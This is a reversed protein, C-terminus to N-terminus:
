VHRLRHRAQLEPDVSLDGISIRGLGTVLITWIRRYEAIQEQTPVTRRGRWPKRNTARDPLRQGPKALVLGCRSAQKRIVRRTVGLRSAAETLDCKPDAWVKRLKTDWTHGYEKVWDVRWKDQECVDPGFRSYVFGCQPCAFDGIPKPKGCNPGLLQRRVTCERILLKNQCASMPSLCPWPGEGFPACDSLQNFFGAASFGLLNTVVLHRIPYQIVEPNQLLRRLWSKKGKELELGLL